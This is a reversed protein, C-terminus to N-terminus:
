KVVEGAKHEIGTSGVTLHRPGPRATEPPLSLCSSPPGVRPQAPLVPVCGSASPAEHM